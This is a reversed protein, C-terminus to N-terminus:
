IWSLKKNRHKGTAIILIIGAAFGGIHAYWAIGQSSPQLIGSIQMIFWAGLVLFAPVRVFRIFLLFWILLVIRARPYAIMYAGLVASIAGSAGIM